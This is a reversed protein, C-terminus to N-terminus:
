TISMIAHLNCNSQIVFHYFHVISLKSKTVTDLFESEVIEQYAGHGKIKNEQAEKHNQKMEMMRRERIDRMIKEEEEDELDSDGDQRNGDVNEKSLVKEQLVNGEQDKMQQTVQITKDKIAEQM